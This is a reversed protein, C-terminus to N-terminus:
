LQTKPGLKYPFGMRQRFQWGNRHELKSKLTKEGEAIPGKLEDIEPEFRLTDFGTTPRFFRYTVTLYVNSISNM